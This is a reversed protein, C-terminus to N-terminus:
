QFRGLHATLLLDFLLIPLRIVKLGFFLESDSADTVTVVSGDPKVLEYQTISDVALGYQNTKWSYGIIVYTGSCTGLFYDM